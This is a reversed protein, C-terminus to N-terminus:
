LCLGTVRNNMDAPMICYCKGFPCTPAQWILCFPFMRRTATKAVNFICPAIFVRILHRMERAIYPLAGERGIILCFIAM